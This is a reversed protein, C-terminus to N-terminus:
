AAAVMGCLLRCSTEYRVRGGRRGSGMSSSTWVGPDGMLAGDSTPSPSGRSATSPSSLVLSDRGTEAMLLAEAANSSSSSMSSSNTSM